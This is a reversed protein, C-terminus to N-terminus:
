ITVVEYTDDLDDYSLNETTAVVEDMGTGSNDCSGSGSRMSFEEAAKKGSDRGDDVVVSPNTAADADTDATHPGCTDNNTQNARRESRGTDSFFGPFADDFIDKTPEDSSQADMDRAEAPPELISFTSSVTEVPLPLVNAEQTTANINDRSQQSTASVPVKSMSKQSEEQTKSKEHMRPTDEERVASSFKLAVVNGQQSSADTNSTVPKSRREEQPIKATETTHSADIIEEAITKSLSGTTSAISKSGQEPQMPNANETVESTVTEELNEKNQSRPMIAIKNAFLIVIRGRTSFLDRDPLLVEQVDWFAREPHSSKLLVDDDRRSWKQSEALRIAYELSQPNTCM